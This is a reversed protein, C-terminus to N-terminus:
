VRRPKPRPRPAKKPRLRASLLRAGEELGPLFRALAQAFMEQVNHKHSQERKKATTDSVATDQEPPLAGGLAGAKLALGAAVTSLAVGKDLAQLGGNADNADLVAFRHDLESLQTILAHVVYSRSPGLSKLMEQTFPPPTNPFWPLLRRAQTPLEPLPVVDFIGFMLLLSSWALVLATQARAWGRTEEDIRGIVEWDKAGGGTAVLYDLFRQVNFVMELRSKELADLGEITPPEDGHLQELAREPDHSFGHRKPSHFRSSSDRLLGAAAAKPHAFLRTVTDYRDQFDQFPENGLAGLFSLLDLHGDSGGAPETLGNNETRRGGPHDNALPAKPATTLPSDPVARASGPDHRGRGARTRPV